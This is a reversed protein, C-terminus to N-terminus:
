RGTEVGHESFSLALPPLAKGADSRHETSCVALSAPPTFLLSDRTILFNATAFGDRRGAKLKKKDKKKYHDELEEESDYSAPSTTKMRFDFM